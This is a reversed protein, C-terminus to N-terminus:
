TMAKADIEPHAAMFDLLTGTSTPSDGGADDSCASGVVGVVAVMVIFLTRRM